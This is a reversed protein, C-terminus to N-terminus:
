AYYSTMHEVFDAILPNENKRHWLCCLFSDVHIPITFVEADDPIYGFRADCVASYPLVRLNLMASRFNETEYHASFDHGLFRSMRHSIEEWDSTSWVGYSTSLRPVDDSEKNDEGSIYLRLDERAFPRYDFDGGSVIQLENIIAVDLEGNEVKKLLDKNKCQQGHMSIDPHKKRFSAIGGSINGMINIYESVGIQFAAAISSYYEDIARRANRYEGNWKAAYQFFDKGAETLSVGQKSRQFLATGIEKELNQIHQSVVQSSLFLERAAGAISGRCSVSLFCDIQLKNM